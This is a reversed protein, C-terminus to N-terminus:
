FDAEKLFKRTLFTVAMIILMLIVSMASALGGNFENFATIYICYVPTATSGMPGGNTLLYVIDFLQFAGILLMTVVFQASNRMLPVTLRFFRQMGNAGDITAAEYLEAPINQLGALFILMNSGLGGWLSILVISIMATESEFYWQSIPLGLMILINNFLGKSPNMLWMWVYATAVGSTIAPFYMVTRYFKALPMKRNLLVAVTFSCVLMLPVYMVVFLLINGLSKVFFSNNFLYWYQTFGVFEMRNVMNYNTFSAYIEVCFPIVTFILFVIVAPAIFLYGINQQGVQKKRKSEAKAKLM